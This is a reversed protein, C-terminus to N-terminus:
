ADIGCGRLLEEWKRQNEPNYPSHRWALAKGHSKYTQFNSTHNRRIKNILNVGERISNQSYYYGYEQWDSANHIVPYGTWFYELIMYNYENNIQHCVPIASPYDELLQLISMRNKSEVKKDKVLELSEYIKRFFPILLLRDGNVFIVRGNWTKNERYWREIMLLPILSCKQFSINPELLLFVDDKEEKAPRWEYRKKGANELIEADWVYPAICHKRKSLEIKNIALAYEANQYYHPSTWVYDIDGVVHHAFSMEPMFVPTEIDINLINGLYLKCIKAGCRKFFRRVTGELSMGIEIYLNVSIPNNVIEEVVKIKVDEMFKPVKVNEKNNVILVANWGMSEFLRYILYVNQYLGNMFLIDDTIAATAIFVTKKQICEASNKLKILTKNHDKEEEQYRTMGPYQM